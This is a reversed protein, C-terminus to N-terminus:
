GPKQFPIHLLVPALAQAQHPERLGADGIELELQGVAPQDLYSGFLRDWWPVSFGYNSNSETRIVSHHIRHMDPTVLLWRLPRELGKPLAVNGHNFTACLNLTLEFILVAAPPAGLLAVAGMKLLMSLVAELPHFRAGSTVDLELDAHHVRHLRWLLPIRHFLRHQWYILLDLLLVALGIGVGDPLSLQNLLGWGAAAAWVATGLAAGAFLLRLLVANLLLLALNVPWRLRRHVRQPRRPARIEWLAMLAFLGVFAGSRILADM